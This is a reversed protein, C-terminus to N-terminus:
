HRFCWCLHWYRRLWSRQPRQWLMSLLLHDWFIWMGGRSGVCICSWSRIGVLGTNNPDTRAGVDFVPAILLLKSDEVIGYILYFFKTKFFLDTSKYQHTQAAFDLGVEEESLKSSGSVPWAAQQGWCIWHKPANGRSYRGVFPCCVCCPPSGRSESTGALLQLEWGAQRRQTERSSFYAASM